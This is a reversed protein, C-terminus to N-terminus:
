ITSLGAFIVTCYFSLGKSVLNLAILTLNISETNGYNEKLTISSPLKWNSREYMDWRSYYCSLGFYREQRFKLNHFPFNLCKGNEHIKKFHGVLSDKFRYTMITCAYGSGSIRMVLFKDSHPIKRSILASQYFKTLFVFFHWVPFFNPNKRSSFRLFQIKFLFKIRYIALILARKEM